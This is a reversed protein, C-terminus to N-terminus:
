SRAGSERCGLLPQLGGDNCSTFARFSSALLSTTTAINKVLGLQRKIEGFLKIGCFGQNALGKTSSAEVGDAPGRHRVAAPVPPLRVAPPRCAPPLRAAPLINRPRSQRIRQRMEIM